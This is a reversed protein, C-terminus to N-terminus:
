WLWSKRLSWHENCDRWKRFSNGLVVARVHKKEKGSQDTAMPDDPPKGQIGEEGASLSGNKYNTTQPDSEEGETRTEDIESAVCAALPKRLPKAHSGKVAKGALWLGGLTALGVPGFM